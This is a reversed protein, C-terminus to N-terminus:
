VKRSKQIYFPMNTNGSLNVSDSIYVNKDAVICNVTADAGIHTGSFLVSNKVVAGREVKVGRFLVSNVVTGEIVCDDAIMSNEVDATSKYVSPSSNHVKTYIRAERDGFLHERAEPNNVLDMSCSYYDLFSSVTAVYGNFRVSRYNQSKCNRLMFDTLSTLNYAIAEEILRRLFVTKMVFIGLALDPHREDYKESMSIDTVKGAVSSLMMRPHKSTYKHSAAMTVLTINAGSKEHDSILSALDINLVNDSDMMVVYEETFENILSRMSKLAELHTSFMKAESANAAAQFPSIFNIGSKRRALDWDKGSGIHRLLSRYNYNAVVFINSINANVMNSLCFDVLRYRCAVPIAAVTRDSTLRSLTNTNLSSFIIGAANSM